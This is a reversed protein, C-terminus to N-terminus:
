AVRPVPPPTPAAAAKESRRLAEGYIDMRTGSRYAWLGTATGAATLALGAVFTEPSASSSFMDSKFLGNVFDALAVGGAATFVTSLGQRVLHVYGAKKFETRLATTEPTDGSHSLAKFLMRGGTMASNIVGLGTSLVPLLFAAGLASVALVTDGWPTGAGGLVTAAFVAATSLLAIDAAHKGILSHDPKMYVNNKLDEFSPAAQGTMTMHEGIYFISFSYPRKDIM